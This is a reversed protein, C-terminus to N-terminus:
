GGPIRDTGAGPLFAYRLRGPHSEEGDATELWVLLSGGIHSRAVSRGSELDFRDILRWRELDVDYVALVTPDYGWATVFREGASPYNVEEQLGSRIPRLEDTLTSRYVLAGWNFMNFGPDTEKWIVGDNVLVPMTARGSTDLQRPPESMVVDSLYVHREDRTRDENYRIECYALQGGRLSPLWLEALRADRELLVQPTWDPATALLLQSVPGTPGRDFATWVVRDEYVAVSPLLGSVEDDGPHADLLVPDADPDPLIRLEWDKQGNADMDVFAITGLDGAVVAIMRDRRPNRWLLESRDEGPVHRWLDPAVDGDPGDAVGSGFLVAEGDSAFAVLPWTSAPDIAGIEIERGLEGLPEVRLTPSPPAALFSTRPTSSPVGHPQSPAPVAASCAVTGAVVLAPLARGLGRPASM